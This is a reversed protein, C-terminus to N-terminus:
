TTTLAEDLLEDLSAIRKSQMIPHEISSLIDLENEQIFLREDLTIDEYIIRSDKIQYEKNIKHFIRNGLKILDKRNMRFTTHKMTNGKKTLIHENYLLYHFLEVNYM